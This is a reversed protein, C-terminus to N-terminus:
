LNFWNEKLATGWEGDALVELEMTRLARARKEHCQM